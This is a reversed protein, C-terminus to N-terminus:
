ANLHRTIYAQVDVPEGSHASEIAAFLLGACQINDTITTQPAPGGNLWQCFQEALWPNRWLERDTRLPLERSEVPGWPGSTLVRLNRADLELTGNECEARIYDRGWPNMTAANAKAGEYMARTGNMMEVTIMATSDGGFEGWPPNWTRAYVRQADSGTLARIIDFHHVTGEILLTDRIRHRFDGWDGFNRMNHTFRYVLYNLPGYEGDHIAQQLSQKDADFRHSMTVMMKLDAASVKRYIRASARMTDAIPKESLIHVGAEIAADVITEHAAPPVVVTLFDVQHRALAEHVDTYCADPDLGLHETALQHRDPDLDVAAVTRAAGIRELHPLVERAWHAGGFGGLGVHLCRLM